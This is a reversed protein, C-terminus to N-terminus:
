VEAVGFFFWVSGLDLSPPLRECAFSYGAFVRWSGLEAQALFVALRGSPEPLPRISPHIRSFGLLDCSGKGSAAGDHPDGACQQVGGAPRTAPTAPKSAGHAERKRCM